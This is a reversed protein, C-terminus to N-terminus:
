VRDGQRRRLKAQLAAHTPCQLLQLSAADGAADVAICGCAYVATRRESTARVSVAEAVSEVDSRRRNLPRDLAQEM